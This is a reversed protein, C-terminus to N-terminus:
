KDHLAEPLLNKQQLVYFQTKTYRYIVDAKINQFKWPKVILLDGRRIRFFRKMKGPIRAMRTTNDECFVRIRLGGMLQEAIGFQEEKEKDPLRIELDNELNNIKKFDNKEM